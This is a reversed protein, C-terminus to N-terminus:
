GRKDITDFKEQTSIEDKLISKIAIILEKQGEIQKEQNELVGAWLFLNFVLSGLAIIVTFAIGINYDDSYNFSMYIGSAAGLVSIVLAVIRVTSSRM